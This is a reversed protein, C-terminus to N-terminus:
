QVIETACLSECAQAPKAENELHTDRHTRRKRPVRYPSEERMRSPSNRARETHCNQPAASRRPFGAVRDAIDPLRRPACRRTAKASRCRALCMDPLSPSPCLRSRCLRRWSQRTSLQRRLRTEQEEQHDAPTTVFSSRPTADDRNPLSTLRPLAAPAPTQAQSFLRITTSNSNPLATSCDRIIAVFILLRILLLQSFSLGTLAALTTPM